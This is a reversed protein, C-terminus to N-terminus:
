LFDDFGDHGFSVGDSGCTSFQVNSTSRQANFTETQGDLNSGAQLKCGAVNLKCGEVLFILLISIQMRDPPRLWRMPRSLARRRRPRRVRRPHTRAAALVVLRGARKM